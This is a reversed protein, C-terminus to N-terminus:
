GKSHADSGRDVSTVYLGAPLRYYHQYFTSLAEGEIGLTPRGSVYGQRILQDVVDKVTASPIAFGLGEVGAKDTFAGIKMTNIGIVQGFCNILPGGSNGSNLAANTQILTMTRGDIDVDRNIASVIGNTYTGRFKVGLPDGIAAVTDGVRLGASDGFQAPTIGEAEIRLVALDSVEDSGILEAYFVRNDTLQVSITVAGEVVHANTVIYGQESLIVGTGTSSSQIQSCSISVVSGINRSYIEQLSLGEPQPINEAGAPTQQLQMTAMQADAPPHVPESAAMSETEQQVPETTFSISLENRERDKLQQFMRVNLVGLVTIIGCLFIILILMLAVIGGRSKPPQTPGTGYISDDWDTYNRKREDM